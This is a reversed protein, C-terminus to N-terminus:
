FDVTVRAYGGRPIQSSQNSQVDNFEFHRRDTLNQGVLAIEIWDTPRYGLRLDLRVYQSVGRTELLPVVGELGDVYYVSADFEFSLPLDFYSRFTFTHRPNQKEVGVFTPVLGPMGDFDFGLVSYGATLRMWDVPIVTVEVEGGYVKVEDGNDFGLIPRFTTLDVGAFGLSSVDEYDSWFGSVEATMWELQHFRYGGEVSVLEESRQNRDGRLLATGFDAQLDRDVYTPTRVARSVAAWLTHGEVPKIVIRGSPQYEFGTWNNGSLKTGAILQVHDDFLDLTFNFFTSGLHFTTSTPVFSTGGVAARTHANFLRYDLGWVLNLDGIVNTDHQVGFEFFNLDEGTNGDRSRRDYIARVEVASENEFDHGYKLMIDGGRKKFHSERFGVGGAFAASITRTGQTSSQDFFNGHVELRDQDTLQSDSRFGARFQRWEDTASGRSNADYDGTREGKVSARYTTRDSIKGGFRAEGGAELNGGYGTAHFGQTDASNKTIINIVGNVANAGWIAGGPGRIVEIRAIDSMNLSQTDWFTGGFVPTYLSRGDVMVLLKNAFETNFGRISIAWRSADIRAVQVGPVMRLAEPVSTLGSRRIDEATIVTVAAAAENKSQAKKSVSTVEVNMLDELSLELLDDESQAPLAVLSTLGAVVAITSILGFGSRLFGTQRTLRGM